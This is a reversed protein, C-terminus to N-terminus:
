VEDVGILINYLWEVFNENNLNQQVIEMVVLAKDMEIGGELM